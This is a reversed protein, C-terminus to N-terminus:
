MMQLPACRKRLRPDFVRIAKRRRRLRADNVFVRMTKRRRRLRADNLFFCVFLFIRM